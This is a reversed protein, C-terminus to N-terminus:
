KLIYYKLKKRTVKYGVLQGNQESKPPPSWRVFASTSNIMGVHVNEPPASPVDEMTTALKVNSPRGEITKFFPVLFFEYKTFKKLDTLVYSTLGANFVTVMKYEPKDLVERYRIYLGEVLDSAGLIQLHLISIIDPSCVRVISLSLSFLPCFHTNTSVDWMIKVSTSSQPQVDRLQLIESNLRDRARILEIQPVSHQNVSTTHAVDSLPGPLSLGHSNQARVLFVYNTDAKLDTVQSCVM